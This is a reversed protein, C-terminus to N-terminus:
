KDMHGSAFVKLKKKNAHGVEVGAHYTNGRTNLEALVEKKIFQVTNTKVNMV